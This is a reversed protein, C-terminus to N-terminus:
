THQNIVHKDVKIEDEIAKLKERIGDLDVTIEEKTKVIETQLFAKAEEISSYIRTFEQM